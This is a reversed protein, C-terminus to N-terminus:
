PSPLSVTYLEYLPSDSRSNFTALKQADWHRANVIAMANARAAPFMATGPAPVVFLPASDQIMQEYWEIEAQSPNAAFQPWIDLVQVKGNLLGNIISGSGWDLVIVPHGPHKAIEDALAYTAPDWLPKALHAFGQLNGADVRLSSLSVLAVAVGAMAAWPKRFNTPAFCQGLPIAILLLWFPALTALHHPGTAQRTVFLEALTVLHFVLLFAVMRWDIHRRHIAAMVAALMGVGALVYLHPTGLAAMDGNTVVGYVGTGAITMLLLQTVSDIRQSWDINGIEEELPVYHNIYYWLVGAVGAAAIALGISFRAHRQFLELLHRPYVVLVAAVLAPAFWLFNLKDFLGVAMAALAAALYRPERTKIWLVMSLLLLTRFLMMLTTPGWDIRTHFLTSPEVAAMAIFTLAVPRSFAKLALQYHLWLTLAGLAVVPARVTFASVGLLKFIPYYLWAKLAGIYSMLMIPVEGLKLSLFIGNPSGLAADVFLMEDYYLGPTSLRWGAILVFAFLAAAIAVRQWSSALRRVQEV